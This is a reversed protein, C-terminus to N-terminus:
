HMNSIGAREREEKRYLVTIKAGDKALMNFLKAEEKTCLQSFSIVQTQHPLAKFLLIKNLLSWKVKKVHKLLIFIM